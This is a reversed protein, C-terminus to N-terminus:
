RTNHQVWSCLRIIILKGNKKNNVLGWKKNTKGRFKIKNWESKKM